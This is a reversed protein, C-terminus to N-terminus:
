SPSAPNPSLHDDVGANEDSGGVVTIGLRSAASVNQPGLEVLGEDDWREGERLRSIEDVGAEATASIARAEDSVAM